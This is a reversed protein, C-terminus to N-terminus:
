FSYKLALQVLRPEPSWPLNANFPWPDLITGKDYWYKVSLNNARHLQHDVRILFQDQDYAALAARCVTPLRIRRPSGRLCKRQRRMSARPPYSAAPSRHMRCRITPGARLKLFTAQKEASTPPFANNALSVERIRTGQYAGFFFTRNRGSYRPLLVPGGLSFGFQNQRLIPKSPSFASRANLKDNRLFEWGSGHVDNSGSKTVTSFIGGANRGYEASYANTQVRFEQVVDPPPLPNGDSHQVANFPAGDLLYQQANSRTGNITILVGNIGPRTPVSVTSAGPILVALAAPNRGNLPLETMRKQDMLHTISARRTDVQTVDSTVTVTDAVDGVPLV